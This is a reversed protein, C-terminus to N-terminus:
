ERSRSALQRKLDDLYSRVKAPDSEDPSWPAWETDAPSFPGNTVEHVLLSSSTVIQTHYRSDETRYFFPRGSAYDGIEVADEIQGSANFFIVAATGAIIYFSESKNLHRHPRIYADGTLAIFMENIRNASEKHACLRARHRPNSAAMAQFDELHTRSVTVVREQALYVEPTIRKFQTTM